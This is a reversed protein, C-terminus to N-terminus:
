SSSGGGVWSLDSTDRGSIYDYPGQFLAISLCRVAHLKIGSSYRNNAGLSFRQTFKLLFQLQQKVVNRLNTNFGSCTVSVQELNTFRKLCLCYKFDSRVLNIGVLLVLSSALPLSSSLLYCCSFPM